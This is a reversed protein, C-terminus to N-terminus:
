ESEKLVCVRGRTKDICKICRSPECKTEPKRGWKVCHNCRGPTYLIREVGHLGGGIGFCKREPGSCGCGWVDFNILINCKSCHAYTHTGKIDHKQIINYTGDVWERKSSPQSQADRSTVNYDTGVAPKGGAVPQGQFNDMFDRSHYQTDSPMEPCTRSINGNSRFLLTNQCLSALVIHYALYSVTNIRSGLSSRQSSDRLM